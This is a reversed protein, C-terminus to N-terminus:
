SVPPLWGPPADLPTRNNTRLSAEVAAVLLAASQQLDQCRAFRGMLTQYRAHRGQRLRELEALVARKAVEKRTPNRSM